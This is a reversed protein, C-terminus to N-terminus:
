WYCSNTSVKSYLMKQRLDPKNFLSLNPFHMITIYTVIYCEDDQCYMTHIRTRKFRAHTWRAESLYLQVNSLAIIIYLLPIFMKCEEQSVVTHCLAEFSCYDLTKFLIVSHYHRSYEQLTQKWKFNKNITLTCIIL